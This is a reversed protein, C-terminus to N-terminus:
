KEPEFKLSASNICYRKGTPKPGDDFVHGLHSGCRDCMVEVRAMFMSKDEHYLINEDKVPEWFSPWGTGSKYKTDSGFLPAGCAVCKYLGKDKNDWYEGTFAQETGKERAVHYQAPTLIKKWEEETKVVKDANSKESMQVGGKMPMPNNQVNNSCSIVLFLLACLALCAGLELKGTVFRKGTESKMFIVQSSEYILILFLLFYRSIGPTILIIYCCQLLFTFSVMKLLFSYRGTEM